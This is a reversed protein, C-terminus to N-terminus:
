LPGPLQVPEPARECIAAVAGRALAEGVFLNGDVNEGPFASFLDGPRVRRSDFAGGTVETDPGEFVRYGQDRMSRAVFTTTLHRDRGPWGKEPAVGLYSLAEDAFHRLDSGGRSHRDPWRTRM